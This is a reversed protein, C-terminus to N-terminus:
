HQMELVAKITKGSLQDAVAQNIDNFPYSTILRDFPFRGQLYLDVLQPIFIDPISNGEVYGQVSQGALLLNFWPLELAKGASSPVAVLALQGRIALGGLANGILAAVGAADVIADVGHPAIARIAASLDDVSRTNILHTAGLSRAIDLRSEVLDIAILTACGCVQAAMIAALGVAGMGLVAISSGAQPRIGNMVTGAGTQIGCGLPGLLKIPVDKRVKVTNRENALAYHAFSSQGFYKLHAEGHTRKARRGHPDTQFNLAAFNDCYMPQGSVCQPCTGDFAPALVVHDGPAVKCVRRGVQVVVGAGEHGLVTPFPADVIGDKSALDTHCIGVGAIEVLVEDDDPEPLDIYELAFPEKLADVVAALSKM